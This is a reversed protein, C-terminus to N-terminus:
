ESRSIIQARARGLSSIYLAIAKVQAPTYRSIQPHMYAGYGYRNRDKKKYGILAQRVAEPRWGAIPRTVNWAHREGYQGHCAACHQEYLHSGESAHSPLSFLLIFIFFLTSRM